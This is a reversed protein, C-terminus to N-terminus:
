KEIGRKQLKLKFSKMCELCLTKIINGSVMDSFDLEVILSSKCYPCKIHVRKM